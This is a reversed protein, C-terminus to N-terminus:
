PLTQNKIGGSCELVNCGFIYKNLRRPSHLTHFCNESEGRISEEQATLLSHIKSESFALPPLKLGVSMKQEVECDEFISKLTTVEVIRRTKDKKKGELEFSSLTV